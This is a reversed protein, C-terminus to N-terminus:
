YERARQGHLAARRYLVFPAFALTKFVGGSLNKGSDRKLWDLSRPRDIVPLQAVSMVTAV